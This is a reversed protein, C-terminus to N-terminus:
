SKPAPKDNKVTALLSPFDETSEKVKPENGKTTNKSEVKLTGLLSPFDETAMQLKPDSSKALKKVEAKTSSTSYYSNLEKKHNQSQHFNFESNLFFQECFQCEMLKNLLKKKMQSEKSGSKPWGSKSQAQKNSSEVVNSYAKYLEQQKASDPLLVIMEQILDYFQVYDQQFDLLTQCKNLYESASLKNLQFEVSTQKFKEYESENYIGFLNTLKKSLTQNRSAYDDPKIYPNPTAPPSPSNRQAETSEFGPPAAKTGGFGPPCAASVTQSSTGRRSNNNFGPPPFDELNDLPNDSLSAKTLKSPGKPTVADSLAPQSLQHQYNYPSKPPSRDLYKKLDQFNSSVPVTTAASIARLNSQRNSQNASAEPECVVKNKEKMELEQQLKLKEKKAQKKSLPQKTAGAILEPTAHPTKSSWASIPAKKSQVGFPSNSAGSVLSPFEAEKNIRPANGQGILNRWLPNTVPEEPTPPVPQPKKEQEVKAKIQEVQQQPQPQSQEYEEYQKKLNALNAQRKREEEDRLIQARSQRVANQDIQAEGENLTSFSGASQSHHGLRQDRHDRQQKGSKGRGYGSSGTGGAGGDRTQDREQDRGRSM